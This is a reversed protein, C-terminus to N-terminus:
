INKWLRHERQLCVVSLAILQDVCMVVKVCVAVASDPESSLRFYINM